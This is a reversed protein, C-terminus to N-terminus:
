MTMRGVWQVSSEGDVLGTQRDDDGDLDPPKQQKLSGSMYKSLKV